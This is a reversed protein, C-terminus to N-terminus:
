NLLIGLVLSSKYTLYPLTLYYNFSQKTVIVNSTNSALTINSSWDATVLFPNCDMM